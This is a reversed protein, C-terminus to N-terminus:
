RNAAIRADVKDFVYNGIVMVSITVTAIIFGSLIM